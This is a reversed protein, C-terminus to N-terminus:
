SAHKSSSLEAKTPTLNPYFIRSASSLIKRNLTKSITESKIFRFHTAQPNLWKHRPLLLHLLPLSKLQLSLSASSTVGTKLFLIKQTASATPPSHINRNLEPLQNSSPTSPTHSLTASSFELAGFATYLTRLPPLSVYVISLRM